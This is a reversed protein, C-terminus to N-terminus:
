RVDSTPTREDSRSPAAARRRVRRTAVIGGVVGTVAASVTTGWVVVAQGVRGGCSCALADAVM